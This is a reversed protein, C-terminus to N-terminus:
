SLLIAMYFGIKGGAHRSIVKSVEFYTSQRCYRVRRLILLEGKMIILGAPPLNLRYRECSVPRMRSGASSSAFGPLITACPSAERSDESPKEITTWRGGTTTRASWRGELRHIVSEAVNVFQATFPLFFENNDAYRAHSSFECLRNRPPHPYILTLSRLPLCDRSFIECMSCSALPFDCIDAEGPRMISEPGRELRCYYGCHAQAILM